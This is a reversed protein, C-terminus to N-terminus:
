DGVACNPAPPPAEGMSDATADSVPRRRLWEFRALFLAYAEDSLLSLAYKLAAAGLTVHECRQLHPCNAKPTEVKDVTPFKIIKSM